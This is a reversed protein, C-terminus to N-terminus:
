NKSISARSQNEQKRGQADSINTTQSCTSNKDSFLGYILKSYFIIMKWISKGETDPISRIFYLM